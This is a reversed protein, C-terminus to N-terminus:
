AEQQGAVSMRRMWEQYVGRMGTEDSGDSVTGGLEDSGERASGRNLLTWEAPSARLGTQIRSWAEVDDTNGLGAPGNFSEHIRLRIANAEPPGNELKLVTHRVETLEPSIPRLERLFMDSLSVNPFLCVNMLSGRSARVIDDSSGPYRAQITTVFDDWEVPSVRPKMHTLPLDMRGHIVSHGNGLARSFRESTGKAMREWDTKEGVGSMVDLYSRHTYRFHYGDTSNELVLKWNARAVLKFQGAVALQWQGGQELFRDMFMRVPGLYQELPMVDHQLSAFVLGRYIGVHPAELLPLDQAAVVGEYGESEPISLLTGGLDYTWGHYACKFFKTTGRERQVVTTGRHRCRNRLVRVSGDKTRVVIVPERGISTSKYDGPGPVESVHGVYVWGREFVRAMEREFLEPDYYTEPRVKAGSYWQAADFANISDM